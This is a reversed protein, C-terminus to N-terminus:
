SSQFMAVPLQLPDMYIVKEQGWFGASAMIEINLDAFIGESVFFVMYSLDTIYFFGKCQSFKWHSHDM